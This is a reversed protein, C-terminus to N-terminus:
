KFDNSFKLKQVLNNAFNMSLIIAEGMDKANLMASVLGLMQQQLFLLKEPTIDGLNSFGPLASSHQSIPVNNAAAANITGINSNSPSNPVNNANITGINSNGMGKLVSAFSAGTQQQNPLPLLINNTKSTSPITSRKEPKQQRTQRAKLIKQRIPCEWFNSKHKGGCNACKFNDTSDKVPCSDKAHSSDGCNMCKLAMHCHKTGHGWGQCRRCQTLGQASGGHKRYHEWKIQMDLLYKKKDLLKLNNVESRNFHILYFERAIGSVPTVNSQKKKKMLIIQTPSVGFENEIGCKIEDLTYDNTLGKLVVKFPRASKTDFSYFQHEKLTLYEVLSKHDELSEALVRCEGRRGIQFRVKVNPIFSSLESRFAALNAVTVVIPPVKDKNRIVDSSNSPIVIEEDDLQSLEDFQNSLDLIDPPPSPAPRKNGKRKKRPAVFGNAPM